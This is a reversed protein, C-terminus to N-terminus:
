CLCISNQPAIVAEYSHDADIFVLDLSEDAVEAAAAISEDNIWTVRERFKQM